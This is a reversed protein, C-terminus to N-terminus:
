VDAIRAAVAADDDHGVVLRRLLVRQERHETGFDMLYRHNGVAIGVLVLVDRLPEGGREGVGDPGVLEVVGCVAVGVRAGRSGLDPLLGVPADIGEDGGGAGAAGECPDRLVQLRPPARSAPPEGVRRPATVILVHPAPVELRGAAARDGLPDADTADRLIELARRDILGHVDLVGRRHPVDVPQQVLLAQEEAAGAPDVDGGRDLHGAREPRPVGDHRHEAVAPGPVLRAEEIALPELSFAEGCVNRGNTHAYRNAVESTTSARTIRFRLGSRAPACPGASPATAPKRSAMPPAAAAGIAAHTVLRTGCRAAVAATPTSTNTSPAARCNRVRPHAS